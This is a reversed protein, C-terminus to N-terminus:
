GEKKVAKPIGTGVFLSGKLVLIQGTRVLSFFAWFSVNTWEFFWAGGLRGNLKLNEPGIPVSSRSHSGLEAQASSVCRM